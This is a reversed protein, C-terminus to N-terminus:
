IISLAETLTKHRFRRGEKIWKAPVIHKDSLIVDALEGYILKLMFAPINPLFLSKGENKCISKIVNGLREPHPATANYTGEVSDDVIAQYYMAVIDDMSIWSVWQKGSGPIAAVYYQALQAIQGYFGSNKDLVIGTRLAVTQIDQENFYSLTKEWEICLKAMFDNGYNYNESANIAGDPYIGIASASIYKKIKKNLRQSENFLLRATKTRSELLEQKRDRTWRTNAIGAGALHVITDVGEFARPDIQNKHHDWYFINPSESTKNLNASFFKVDFNNETLQLALKKCIAGSAGTLLVSM